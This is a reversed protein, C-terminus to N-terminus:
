FNPVDTFIETSKILPVNKTDTIIDFFEDFYIYLHSYLFTGSLTSLFVLIIDRVILKLPYDVEEESLRREIFKALCYLFTAILPVAFLNNM